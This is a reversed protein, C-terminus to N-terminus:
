GKDGLITKFTFVQAGDKIEPGVISANNLEPYQMSYFDVVEKVKLTNNPDPLEEKEFFFKRPLVAIELPM